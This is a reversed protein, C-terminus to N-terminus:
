CLCISVRVFLCLLFLCFGRGLKRHSPIRWINEMIKELCMTSNFRGSGKLNPIVMHGARALLMHVCTHYRVESFFFVNLALIFYVMNGKEQMLSLPIILISSREAQDRFSSSIFGFIGVSRCDVYQM